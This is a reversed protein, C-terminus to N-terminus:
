SPCNLRKPNAPEPRKGLTRKIKHEQAKKYQKAFNIINKTISQLDDPNKWKKKKSRKHSKKKHHKKPVGADLKDELLKLYEKRFAKDLKSDNKLNVM